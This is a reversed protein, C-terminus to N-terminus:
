SQTNRRKRLFFVLMFILPILSIFGITWYMPNILSSQRPKDGKGLGSLFNGAAGIERTGLCRNTKPSFKKQVFVLYEKGEEFLFGCDREFPTNVVFFRDTGKKWTESVEFSYKLGGSIWNTNEALCVGRFIIDSEVMASALDATPSCTCEGRAFQLSLSAVFLVAIWLKM